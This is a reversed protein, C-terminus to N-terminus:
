KNEGAIKKEKNSNAKAVGWKQPSVNSIRSLLELKFEKYMHTINKRPKQTPNVLKRVYQNHNIMTDFIYSSYMEQIKVFNNRDMETSKDFDNILMGAIKIKSDGEEILNDITNILKKIGKSSYTDLKLVILAYTAAVLANQLVIGKSPPCDLVIYSFKNQTNEQIKSLLKQLQRLIRHPPVTTFLVHDELDDSGPLLFLNNELNILEVKDELLAEKVTPGDYEDENIGMLTYTSNCQTDLDLFLTPADEALARALGISTTTKGVGGKQNCIAFIQTDM